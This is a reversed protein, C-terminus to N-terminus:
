DRQAHALESTRVARGPLEITGVKWAIRAPWADVQAQTWEYRPEDLRGTEALVKESGDDAYVTLVFQTDAGNDITWVFSQFDAHAGVPALLHFDPSGLMQLAPAPEARFHRWAFLGILIAAAIAAWGALAFSRRRRASPDLRANAAFRAVSERALAPDQSAFASEILAREDRGQRDLASSLAGLEGRIRACTECREITARTEDDLEREGTILAELLREHEDTHTSSM